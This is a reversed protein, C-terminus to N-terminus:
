NTMYILHCIYKSVEITKYKLGLSMDQQMKVIYSCM